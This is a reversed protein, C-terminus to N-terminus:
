QKASETGTRSFDANAYLQSRMLEGLTVCIVTGRISPHERLIPDFEWSFYSSTSSFGSCNMEFSQSFVSTFIYIPLKSFHLWFCTNQPCNCDEKPVTLDKKKISHFHTIINTLFMSILDNKNSETLLTYELVNTTRKLFQASHSAAEAHRDVIM